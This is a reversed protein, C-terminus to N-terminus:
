NNIKIEFLFKIYGNLCPNVSCPSNANFNSSPDGAPNARAYYIHKFSVQNRYAADIIIVSHIEVQFGNIGL